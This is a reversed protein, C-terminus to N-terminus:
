KDESVGYALMNFAFFGLQGSTVDHERELRERRCVRVVVCTITLTCPACPRGYQM